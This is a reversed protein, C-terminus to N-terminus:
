QVAAADTLRELAQTMADVYPADEPIMLGDLFTAPPEWAIVTRGDVNEFVLVRLPLALGALPDDQMAPTGLQPNGFILLEAPALEMDVQMAGEAHNVRAFVTAGADEVAAELKDMTQTVDSAAFKSVVEAAASGAILAATTAGLAARTVFPFM